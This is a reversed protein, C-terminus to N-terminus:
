KKRPPTTLDADIITAARIFIARRKDSIAFHTMDFQFSEAKSYGCNYAMYLSKGNVDYGHKKMRDALYMLYFTAIWRAKDPDMCEKKYDKGLPEFFVCLHEPATLRVWDTADRWAEKSIQYMGLSKGKDGVANPNGSSEIAALRPLFDQIIEFHHTTKISKASAIFPFMILTLKSLFKM